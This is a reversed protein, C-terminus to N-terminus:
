TYHAAPLVLMGPSAVIQKAQNAQVCVAAYIHLRMVLACPSHWFDSGGVPLGHICAVVPYKLAHLGYRGNTWALIGSPMRNM